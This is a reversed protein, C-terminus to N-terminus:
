YGRGDPLFQPYAHQSDGRDGNLTTVRRPNGGAATLLILERGIKWHAVIGLDNMLPVVSRLLESVGGGYPTANVHLVRLGRLDDGLLRLQDLMGDDVVSAYSTLSRQGVDVSELM